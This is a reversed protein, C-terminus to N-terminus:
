LRVGICYIRFRRIVFAFVSKFFLYPNRWRIKTILCNRRIIKYM